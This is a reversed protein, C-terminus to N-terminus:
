MVDTLLHWQATTVSGPQYLLDRLTDTTSLHLYLYVYMSM